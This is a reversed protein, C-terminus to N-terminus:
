RIIVDCGCLTMDCGACVYQSFYKKAIGSLEGFSM